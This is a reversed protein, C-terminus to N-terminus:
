SCPFASSLIMPSALGSMELNQPENGCFTSCSNPAYCCVPQLLRSVDGEAQKVLTFDKTIRNGHNVIHQVVEAYSVKLEGFHPHRYSSITHLDQQQEFFSLFQKSLATYRSIWEYGDGM